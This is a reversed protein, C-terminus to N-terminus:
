TIVPVLSWITGGGRSCAFQFMVKGRVEYAHCTSHHYRLLFPCTADYTTFLIFAALYKTQVQEMSTNLSYPHVHLAGEWKRLTTFLFLGGPRLMVRKGRWPTPVGIRVLPLPVGIRALSAFPSLTHYLIKNTGTRSISKLFLPACSAGGGMEM